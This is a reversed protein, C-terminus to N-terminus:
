NNFTEPSDSYYINTLDPCSKIITNSLTTNMEEYTNYSITKNKYILKFHNVKKIIDVKSIVLNNTGSLNIAQILKDLNLWNVGRKRNTTSGFEEGIDAIDLLIQADTPSPPHQTLFKPDVGVRTDYIKAAGWINRIKKPSFGLSCASYPLTYASTVYPYNGYNIDLWFGQAGECLVDGYLLQTDELLFFNDLYKQVLPDEPNKKIYEKLTIGTRGFKDRATPAIGKGTSGQQNKYKAQDEEVNQTTIVHAMQSIYVLSTDFGNEKLYEMETDFDELNIYCDPGIYCNIDHFIGAPVIHTVYKQSDVYITHGANSGGCWRAVWNYKNTQLLRSVIKGKAEDGWALGCVIDVNNISM